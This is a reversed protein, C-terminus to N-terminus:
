HCQMATNPNFINQWYPFDDADPHSSYGEDPPSSTQTWKGGNRNGGGYNGSGHWAWDVRAITVPISGFSDHTYFLYFKFSNYMEGFSYFGLLSSLHPSDQFNATYYNTPNFYHDSDINQMTDLFYTGSTTSSCVDNSFLDDSTWQNVLQSAHLTGNMAAKDDPSFLFDITIDDGIYNNAVIPEDLKVNISPPQPRLVTFKESEAAISAYQGNSFHLNMGVSVKGSQLADVYWCYTSYNTLLDSNKDYFASCYSYPQENVYNGPITWHQVSDVFPPISPTWVPEFIQLQSIYREPVDASPDDSNGVTLTYEQVGPWANFHRVGPITVVLDPAANDPEPVWLNGDAGLNM